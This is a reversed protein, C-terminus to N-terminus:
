LNASCVTNYASEGSAKLENIETMIDKAGKFAHLKDSLTELPKVAYSTLNTKAQDLALQNKEILSFCKSSKDV